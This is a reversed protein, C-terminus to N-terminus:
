TPKYRACDDWFETASFKSKIVFSGGGLFPPGLAAIGGASHYLPLVDYMRDDPSANVAAQFSSMIHLLRMHSINAAKPLGTTGSTYINLAKDRCYLGARSDPPLPAGSQQMLATDLNKCGASEIATPCHM